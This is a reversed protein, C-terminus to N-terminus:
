KPWSDILTQKDTNARDASEAVSRYKDQCQDLVAGLTRTSQRLADITAAPVGRSISAITNRLSLSSSSAAAAVSRITQDRLVAANRADQIRKEYAIEKANADAKAAALKVTYEAVAKDYGIQREHNLFRHVELTAGGFLAGIVVLEILLKYPSFFGLFASM